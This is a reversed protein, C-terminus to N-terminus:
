LAHFQRWIEYLREPLTIPDFPKPIVGDAGLAMYRELESSQAKATIFTIPVGYADPMAKLRKLTEEGSMGPMMVDLLIFDPMFFPTRQLAAAGSPCADVEYGGIKELALTAVARIDPEDDVLTIRKLALM